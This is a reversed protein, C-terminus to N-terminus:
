ILLVGATWPVKAPATKHEARFAASYAGRHNVVPNNADAQKKLWCEHRSHNWIDPSWCLEEPCWVWSNCGEDHKAKCADCCAQATEVKFDLGWSLAPGDLDLHTEAHCSADAGHLLADTFSLLLLSALQVVRKMEEGSCAVVANGEDRRSGRAKLGAAGLLLNHLCARCANSCADLGKRAHM